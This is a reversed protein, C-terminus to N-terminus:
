QHLVLSEFGPTFFEQVNGEEDLYIIYAELEGHEGLIKQSEELDMAMFTTAFADALACTNAVVSTALVNSSKTYGTKPNITHVYKKGTEPDVRFKRYNGSSAMARDKLSVIQKLQRGEEVQPDDIGVTWQKESVLNTGKALVEGGVEVLYNKIGKADLMAGLRDIAYGKAVANFDFRIAPHAKFITNDKNIAVKDWGVYALLSDVRLSDLELQEGPGFGWANALVGVTPDFYGNSAKHVKNSIEFVERFMEDVVITSDGANIKSIDSTPIYTSMSQNVVQFVSDIEQQYDLEGDSIYIISYTTGLANGWNQNKTWQGKTCCLFLLSVGLIFTKKM